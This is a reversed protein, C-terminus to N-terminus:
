SALHLPTDASILVLDDVTCRRTARLLDRVGWGWQKEVNRLTETDLRGFAAHRMLRTLTRGFKRHQVRWTRAAQYYTRLAEEPLTIQLEDALAKFTHWHNPVTGNEINDIQPVWSRVTAYDVRVGRERLGNHLQKRSRGQATSSM